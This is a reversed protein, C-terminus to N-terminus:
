RKLMVLLFKALTKGEDVGNGTAQWTTGRRWACPAALPGSPDADDACSETHAGRSELNRTQRGAVVVRERETGRVVMGHWAMAM